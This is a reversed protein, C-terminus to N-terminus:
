IYKAILTEMVMAVNVAIGLFSVFGFAQMMAIKRDINMTDNMMRSGETVDNITNMGRYLAVRTGNVYDNINCTNLFNRGSIIVM